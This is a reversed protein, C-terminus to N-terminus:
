LNDTVLLKRYSLALSICLINDVTLIPLNAM